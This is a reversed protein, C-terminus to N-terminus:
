KIYKNIIQKEKSNLEINENIFKLANKLLKQDIKAFNSELELIRKLAKEAEDSKDFFFPMYYYTTGYIFLAEINNQNKIIWKDLIDIGENAYKLKDNPWFAYKAKLAKLSGIYIMSMAKYESNNNGIESFSNIANSLFDENETAKYYLERANELDKSPNSYLISLIFFIYIM